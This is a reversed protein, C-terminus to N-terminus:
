NGGPREYIVCFAMAAEGCDDMSIFQEYDFGKAYLYGYRQIVKPFSEKMFALQEELTTGQMEPYYKPSWQCLGYHKTSNYVWWKLELTHGGCEAMMNGIIGAAAHNSYGMEETLYLWVKTAVPYKEMREAWKASEEAEIITLYDELYRRDLAQLEEIKACVERSAETYNPAQLDYDALLGFLTVIYNSINVRYIVNEEKSLNPIYTFDQFQPMEIFPITPETIVTEVISTTPESAITSFTPATTATDDETAMIQVIIVTFVIVLLLVAIISKRM